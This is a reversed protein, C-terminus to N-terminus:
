PTRAKALLADLYPTSRIASARELYPLAAAHDGAVMYYNGLDLLTLYNRPDISLVRQWVGLASPIDGSLMYGEALIRLYFVDDPLGRLMSSALAIIEPGNNRFTYYRLLDSDVVRALYPYAGKIRQLMAPYVDPHGIAFANNEIARFLSDTPVLAHLSREFLMVAVTTDGAVVASNMAGAYADVCDPRLDIMRTYMANVSSWEEDAVAQSVKRSLRALEADDAASATFATCLLMALILWITPPYMRPRVRNIADRGKPPLEPSLIPDFTNTAM